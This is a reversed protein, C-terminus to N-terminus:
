KIKFSNLFSIWDSKQSEVNTLLKKVDELLFDRDNLEKGFSKDKFITTAVGEWTVAYDKVPQDPYRVRDLEHQVSGRYNDVNDVYPEKRLAPIDKGKYFASIQKYSIGKSTNYDDEFSQSGNTLKSDTEVKHGGVLIPKYIYYEPIDTKYEFYNVPIEYQFDFDPLKVINESKM